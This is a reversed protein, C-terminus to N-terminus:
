ACKLGNALYHLKCALHLPTNGDQDQSNVHDGLLSKLLPFDVFDNQHPFFFRVSIVEMKKFIYELPFTSCYKGLIIHIPLEGAKNWITISAPMKQFFHKVLELQSTNICNYCAIHLATNGKSDQACGTQDTSLMDVIKKVDVSKKEAWNWYPVFHLPILGHCNPRDIMTPVISVMEEIYLSDDEHMCAFHLPSNGDSDVEGLLAPDLSHLIERHLPFLLNLYHFPIMGEQNKITLAKENKKLLCKVVEWNRCLCANHLPTNGNNDCATCTIECEGSVAQVLKMSSPILDSKLKTFAIHLPLQLNSDQMCCLQPKLQSIEEAICIYKPYYRHNSKVVHHLINQKNSDQTDGFLKILSDLLFLTSSDAEAFCCHYAVYDILSTEKGLIHCSNEFAPNSPCKSLLFSLMSETAYCQWAAIILKADCAIAGNKLLNEIM